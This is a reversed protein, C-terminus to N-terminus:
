TQPQMNHQDGEALFSPSLSVPVHPSVSALICVQGSLADSPSFSLVGPSLSPPLPPPGSCLQHLGQPPWSGLGETDLEM